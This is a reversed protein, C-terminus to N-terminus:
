NLNSSIEEIARQAMVNHPEIELAGRFEVLARGLQGKALFARGLNLFPYHRPEYRPAQKALEFWAIADDVQGGELLYAGIDNYPNGFTPDVAIAKKCEDIAEDLKGQHSLTWGLFTHAEATPYIALSRRYLDAARELAGAMQQQYARRILAMAREQVQQSDM